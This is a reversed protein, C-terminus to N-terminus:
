SLFLFQSALFDTDRRYWNANPWIRTATPINLDGEKLAVKVRIDSNRELSMLHYFVTFDSDPQGDRHQRLREDIASVDVLMVYPKPLTRLYMLLDLLQERGVWITPFSDFTQQVVFQGEFKRNLETIVLPVDTQPQNDTVTVM